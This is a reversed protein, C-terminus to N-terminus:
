RKLKHEMIHLCDPNVNGSCSPTEYFILGKDAGIFSIIYSSVLHCGVSVGAIVAFVAMMVFLVVM